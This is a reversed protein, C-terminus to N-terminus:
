LQVSVKGLVYLIKKFVCVIKKFICVIKECFAFCRKYAKDRAAKLPTNKLKELYQSSCYNHFRILICILMDEILCNLVDVFLRNFM